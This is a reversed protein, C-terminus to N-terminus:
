ETFDGNEHRDADASERHARRFFKIVEISVARLFGAERSDPEARHALERLTRMVSETQRTKFFDITWLAREVDAFMAEIQQRTAPPADRRPPRFPQEGAAAMWLEYAMLLVAQALNLSRHEPNTPISVLAHCLDLAANSLGHDERGFLLAVPGGGGSISGAARQLLEPAADRPRAMARKARRERASLGVVWSCDALAPLLEDYIEVSEIIDHTDHAIGEIRWPNWEAPAVLRLRSLGFNKMARVTGAINVRDQPQWLVVVIHDLLARDTVLSVAPARGPPDSVASPASIERFAASGM